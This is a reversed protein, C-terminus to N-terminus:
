WSICKDVVPITVNYAYEDNWRGTVFAELDFSFESLLEVGNECEGTGKETTTATTNKGAGIEEAADLAITTPFKAQPAIGGSANYAGGLIDFEMAFSSTVYPTVAVGAAESVTVSIDFQPDWSGVATLNGTYDLTITGNYIESSLDLAVDVAADASADAGITFSIQPGFSLVGPIDVTYFEIDQVYSFSKNFALDIGLDLVLDSTTNTELYLELEM